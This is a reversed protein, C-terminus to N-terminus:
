PCALYARFKEPDPRFAMIRSGSDERAKSLAAMAEGVLRDGDVLRGARSTLGMFVGQDLTWKTKGHLLMSLKKLLEESMRLAHDVDMNPLILAVGNDGFMFAMDKFSFFDRVTQAYLNFAEDGRHVGELVTIMLSLDQEFSASRRLEAGLRERLYAEWGLGTEADYLGRPGDLSGTPLDSPTMVGATMGPIPEEMGEDDSKPLPQAPESRPNGQEPHVQPDEAYLSAEEPDPEPISPVFGTDSVAVPMSKRTNIAVILAALLLALMACLALAADRIPYFLSEQSLTVFLADISLGAILAGTFRTTSGEPQEFTLGDAAQRYYPSSGPLAYLVEGRTNRIVLALLRDQKLWAAKAAAKWAEGTVADPRSVVNLATRRLDGFAARAAESGAGLEHAIRLVPWAVIAVVVVFSCLSILLPGRKM